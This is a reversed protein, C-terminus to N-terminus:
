LTYTIYADNTHINLIITDIITICKVHQMHCVKNCIESLVFASMCRQAAPASKNQLFQIFYLQAKERILESRCSSDFGMISAWITILTQKIDEAPSQLLKLIYPYIGVQM